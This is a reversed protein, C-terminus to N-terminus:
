GIGSARNSSQRSGLQQQPSWMVVPHFYTWVWPNYTSHSIQNALEMISSNPQSIGHLQRLMAATTAVLILIVHILLAKPQPSHITVEASDGLASSAIQTMHNQSFQQDPDFNSSIETSEVSSSLTEEDDEEEGEHESPTVISSPGSSSLAFSSPSYPKFGPSGKKIHLLQAELEANRKRLAANELLCASYEKTRRSRSRQAAEKNRRKRIERLRTTEEVSRVLPRRGRRVARPLVASAHTSTRLAAPKNM